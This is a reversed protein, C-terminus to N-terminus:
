DMHIAIEINLAVVVHSECFWHGGGGGVCVCLPTVMPTVSLLLLLKPCPKQIPLVFSHFFKVTGRLADDKQAFPLCSTSGMLARDMTTLLLLFSAPHNPMASTARTLPADGLEMGLEMICRKDCGRGSVLPTATAPAGAGGIEYPETTMLLSSTGHVAVTTTSYRLAVPAIPCPSLPNPSHVGHAVAGAVSPGHSDTAREHV